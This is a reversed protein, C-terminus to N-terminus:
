VVLAGELQDGLILAEELLVHVLREVLGPLSSRLPWKAEAESEFGAVASSGLPCLRRLHLGRGENCFQIFPGGRFDSPLAPYSATGSSEARLHPNDLSGSRMKKRIYEAEALQKKQSQNM